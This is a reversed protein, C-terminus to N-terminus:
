GRTPLACSYTCQLVSYACVFPEAVNWCAAVSICLAAKSAALQLCCDEELCTYATATCCADTFLLM